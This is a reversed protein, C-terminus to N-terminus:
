YMADALLQAQAHPPAPLLQSNARPTASAPRVPFTAAREWGPLKSIVLIESFMRVQLIVRRVHSKTDRVERRREVRRTAREHRQQEKKAEKAAQKDTSQGSTLVSRKVDDYRRLKREWWKVGFFAKRMSDQM